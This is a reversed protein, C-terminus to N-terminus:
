THVNLASRSAAFTHRAHIDAIYHTRRQQPFADSPSASIDADKLPQRSANEQNDACGSTSIEASRRDYPTTFSAPAHPRSACLLAYPSISDLM